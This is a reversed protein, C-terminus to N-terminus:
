VIKKFPVIHSLFFLGVMCLMIIGGYFKLGLVVFLLISLIATTRFNVKDRKLIILIELLIILSFAFQMNTMAHLSQMAVLSSSGWLTGHHWFSLLYAYSGCFYTLVLLLGIFKPSKNITLGFRILSNTFLIFWLIPLVKFYIFISSVGIKSVIFVILDMLYNYGGVTAGTFVPSQFPITNFSVTSLALHWVTDTGHIGFFYLGCKTEFCFNTGSPLVMAM